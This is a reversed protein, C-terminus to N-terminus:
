ACIKKENWSEKLQNIFTDTVLIDNDGDYIFADTIDIIDITGVPVIDSYRSDIGYTVYAGQRLYVNAEFVRGDGMDFRVYSSYHITSNTSDNRVLNDYCENIFREILEIEM